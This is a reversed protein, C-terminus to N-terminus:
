THLSPRFYRRLTEGRLDRWPMEHVRNWVFM